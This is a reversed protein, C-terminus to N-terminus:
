ENEHQKTFLMLENMIEEFGEKENFHKAKPVIIVKSKLNDEWAKKNETTNTTYPDNTSLICRINNSCIHQIGEYNFKLNMWEQLQPWSKDLKWWGAVCMLGGIRLDPMDTHLKNLYLLAARCGISHGMFYTSEDLNSLPIEQEIFSIYEDISPKDWNPLTLPIIQINPDIASIELHASKYWDSNENGFYRPFIYVKKM